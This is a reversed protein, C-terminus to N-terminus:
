KNTLKKKATYYRTRIGEYSENLLESTKRIGHEKVLALLEEYPMKRKRGGNNNTQLKRAKAIKQKHEETISKGKNAKAFNNGIMRQQNMRCAEDYGYKEVTNQWPNKHGKKTRTNLMREVIERNNMPNNESTYGASNRVQNYYKRNKGYYLDDDSIQNLYKEEQSSLETANTKDSSWLIKRIFDNPRLNYEKIFITGSSIYGDDPTGEHKGLYKLGTALDTWEYIFGTIM